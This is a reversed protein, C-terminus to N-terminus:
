PTPASSTHNTLNNKPPKQRFVIIPTHMMPQIVATIELLWVLPWLCILTVALRHRTKNGNFFLWCHSVALLLCLLVSLYNFRVAINSAELFFHFLVPQTYGPSGDMDSLMKGINPLMVLFWLAQFAYILAIGFVATADSLRRLKTSSAPNAHLAFDNM